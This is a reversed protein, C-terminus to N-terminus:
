VRKSIKVIEPQRINKEKAVILGDGSYSEDLNAECLIQYGHNELFTKCAYHLDNSHTSIFIYDIRGEKLNRSAGQLMKLEFGQIDSHLIHLRTVKNDLLFQDVTVTPIVAPTIHDSIYYNFFHGKFSNLRFNYKGSLLAHPDPEILYNIGDNIKKQFTMSYFAWFAGLELMSAKSPLFKLIEEFVKEEQPEHVGRNKNLLVTNGDGYYSGVHIKIGNHMIQLDGKIKGADGVREISENDPSLMVTRVRKEWFDDLTVTLKKQFFGAAALPFRIAKFLFYNSKVLLKLSNLM